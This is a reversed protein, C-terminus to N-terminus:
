SAPNKPSAYSFQAIVVTINDKGGRDLALEVLQDCADRPDPNTAIAQQIEDAEVLDSLGDTCLVLYDGDELTLHHVESTVGHADAGLCNTLVHQFATTRSVDVGADVLQQALTHDRTIQQIGDEGVRYARSDGVHVVFADMGISLVATLTTGMGVLEPQHSARQQIRRHIFQVYDDADELLHKTAREDVKRPWSAAYTGLEWVTRLALESAVEGFAAGGMGDAVILVYAEEKEDLLTGSPLSSMLAERSRWRRIVAYQDENNKRVKGLNSLAGIRVQVPLARDDLVAQLAEPLIDDLTDESDPM